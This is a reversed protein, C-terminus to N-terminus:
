HDFLQEFAHHLFDVSLTSIGTMAAFFAFFLILPFPKGKDNDLLYRIRLELPHVAFYCNSLPAANLRNHQGRFRVVKLITKSVLTEDNITEMVTEDALQELSLSLAENFYNEIAKPFFSAFLAFVYKRLPDRRKAHALEHRQVVEIEQQSLRNSLGSTIYSRPRLFGSTFALPTESEILVCGNSLENNKVFYTLHNLQTYTKLTRLLKSFLLFVFFISFVALSAGHWSYLSFTYVHHWHVLTTLWTKQLPLLEPFVLLVVSLLSVLWPLIVVCWLLRLRSKAEFLNSLDRSLSILLSILLLSVCFSMVGITVINLWLGWNGFIM